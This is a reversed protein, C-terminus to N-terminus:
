SANFYAWALVKQSPVPPLGHRWPTPALNHKKKTTKAVMQKNTSLKKIVQEKSLIDLQKTPYFKEKYLVNVTGDLFTYVRVKKKTNIYANENNDLIIHYKKDFRLYCNHHISYEKWVALEQNYNFGEDLSVFVNKTNDLPFAFQANHKPLFENLLYENAKEITTINHMRLEKLLRDQFTRWLREIRGKAKPCRTSIIDTGIHELVNAFRTNKIEKGELEEELTLYQKNSQFVTRYDSYLCEPIGYDRCTQYMVM